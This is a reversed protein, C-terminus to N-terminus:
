RVKNWEVEERRVLDEYWALVALQTRNHVEAKAYLHDLHQRVTAPAIKLELGIDEDGLGRAVLGWVELERWTMGRRRWKERAALWEREGDAGAGAGVGAGVGIAARAAPDLPRMAAPARAEAAGDEAQWAGRKGGTESREAVRRRKRTSHGSGDAGNLGNTGQGGPNGRM